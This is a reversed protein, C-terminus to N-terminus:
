KWAMAAAVGTFVWMITGAVSLGATWKGPKLPYALIMAGFLLAMGTAAPFDGATIGNQNLYPNVISEFPGILFGRWIWALQNPGVIGNPEILARCSSPLLILLALGLLSM